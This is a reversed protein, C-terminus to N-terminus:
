QLGSKKESPKLPKPGQHMLGRAQVHLHFLNSISFEKVSVLKLFLLRVEMYM